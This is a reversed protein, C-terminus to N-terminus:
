HLARRRALLVHVPWEVVLGGNSINLVDALRKWSESEWSVESFQLGLFLLMKKIWPLCAERRWEGDYPIEACNVTAFPGKGASEGKGNIHAQEMMPICANPCWWDGRCNSKVLKVDEWDSAPLAIDELGRYLQCTLRRWEENMWNEALLHAIHDEVLQRLAATAEIAAKKIPLLQGNTTNGYGDLHDKAVLIPLPHYVVAVFTGGPRLHAGVNTIADEILTWHLSQCAMAFDVHKLGLPMDWPDEARALRFAFTTGPFSSVLHDRVETFFWDKPDTLIVFSPKPNSNQYSLLSEVANGSGSGIDHISTFCGRHYTRCLAWLSAPYSPRHAVYIPINERVTSM